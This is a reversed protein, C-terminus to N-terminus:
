LAQNVGMAIVRKRASLRAPNIQDAEYTAAELLADAEGPMGSLWTAFRFAFLDYGDEKSDWEKPRGLTRESSVGMM